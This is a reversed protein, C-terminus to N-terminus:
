IENDAGVMEKVLDDIYDDIGRLALIKGNCFGVFEANPPKHTENHEEIVEYNCDIADRIEEKLKEAFENIAEAKTKDICMHCSAGGDAIEVSLKEELKDIETQQRKILNLVKGYLYFCPLGVNFSPCNDCDQTACKELAKIIENDTM